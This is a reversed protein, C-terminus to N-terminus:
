NGGIRVRINGTSGSTLPDLARGFKWGTSSNRNITFGYLIGDTTDETGGDAYLVDGPKIAVGTGPDISTKASVPLSFVGIAKVTINNTLVLSGPPTQSTMAVLALANGPSNALGWILPDGSNIGVGSNAAIAGGVALTWQEGRDMIENTAM